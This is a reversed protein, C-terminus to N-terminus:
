HILIQADFRRDNKNWRNLLYKLGDNLWDNLWEEILLENMYTAVGVLTLVFVHM